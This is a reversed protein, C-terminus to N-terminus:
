RRPIFGGRPGGRNNDRNYGPRSGGRGQLGGPPGQRLGGMGGRGSNPRGMGGDVRMRAKKEEVNLRHEGNLHIPRSNLVRTVTSEEEFTIFGFNPVQGKPGTKGKATNIRVDMIKGFKSFEVKLEEEGATHPLNGVFIQQSDPVLPRRKEEGGLSDLESNDESNPRYPRDRPPGRGGQLTRPNRQTFGGGGGPQTPPQSGMSGMGGTGGPAPATSAAAAATPPPRSNMEVRNMAPAPTTPAPTAAPPQPTVQPVSTPAPPFGGSSKFLNAYTKPESSIPQQVPDPQPPDPEPTEKPPASIDEWSSGQAEGGWSDSPPVCSWGEPEKEPTPPTEPAPETVSPAPPTPSLAPAVIPATAATPASAGPAAPVVVPTVPVPTPPVQPTAPAPAPAPVAPAPPTAEPEPPHPTGNLTTVAPTTSPAPTTFGQTPLPPELEEEGESGGEEGGEEDSFVEDQYRFIDNHVYYKKPTQPALVFTQMFRRMPNGNNSLEGTVQIVVGDGLTAQADVMRIKAHCDRFNLGMIVKHIDAQGVIPESMSTHGGHMFSSNHSFFRHLHLPAKNLVTYYQRVFELGVCQPTPTEMVM